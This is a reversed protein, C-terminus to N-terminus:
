GMGMDFTESTTGNSGTIEAWEEVGWSLFAKVSEQAAILSIACIAILISRLMGFILVARKSTM